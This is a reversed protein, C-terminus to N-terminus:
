ALTRETVDFNNAVLANAIRRKTTPLVKGRFEITVYDHSDLDDARNLNVDVETVVITFKRANRDLAM